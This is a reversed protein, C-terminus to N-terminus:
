VTLRATKERVLGFFNGYPILTVHHGDPSLVIRKIFAKSQAYAVVGLVLTVIGTGSLITRPAMGLINDVKDAVSWMMATYFGLM